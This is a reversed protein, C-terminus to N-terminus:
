YSFLSEKSDSDHFLISDQFTCTYFSNHLTKSKKKSLDDENCEANGFDNRSRTISSSFHILAFLEVAVLILLVPYLPVSSEDTWFVM